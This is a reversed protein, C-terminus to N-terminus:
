SSSVTRLQKKIYAEDRVRDVNEELVKEAAKLALTTIEEQAEEVLRNKEENIVKKAAEVMTRAKTEADLKLTAELETARTRAEKIIAAAQKESEELITRKTTEISAIEQKITEVSKLSEEVKVRRAELLNMLPKYLLKKLVFLLITFNVIQFAFLYWNIGLKEFLEM